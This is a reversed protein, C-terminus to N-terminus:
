EQAQSEDGLLRNTMKYLMGVIRVLLVKGHAIDEAKLVRRAVLVDLAAACELASGRAIDLYRCRDKTSRKGNGEAVNLPVSSAARDLQSVANLKGGAAPGDLLAGTWTNFEIGVRYVDLKEHDFMPATDMDFVVGLTGRPGDIVLVIVLVIVLGLVLVIVLVLV